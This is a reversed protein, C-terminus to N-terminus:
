ASLWEPRAGRTKRPPDRGEGKDSAAARGLPGLRPPQPVRRKFAAAAPPWSEPAAYRKGPRSGQRSNKRLALHLRPPPVRPLRAPLPRQHRPPLALRDFCIVQGPPYGGELD